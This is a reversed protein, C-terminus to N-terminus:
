HLRGTHVARHHRRQPDPLGTGLRSAYASMAPYPANTAYINSDITFPKDEFPSRQDAPQEQRPWLSVGNLVYSSAGLVQVSVDAGIPVAFHHSAVPM